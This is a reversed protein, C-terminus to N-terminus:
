VLEIGVENCVREVVYCCAPRRAGDATPYVAHLFGRSMRGRRIPRISCKSQHCRPATVGASALETVDGYREEAARAMAKRCIAELEPPAADRTAFPAPPGEIVRELVDYPTSEKSGDEYPPRGAVLTYLM